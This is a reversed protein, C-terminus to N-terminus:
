NNYDIINIEDYPLNDYIEGLINLLKKDLEYYSGNTYQIKDDFFTVNINKKDTRMRILYNWDGHPRSNADRYNISNLFSVIKNIDDKNNFQKVMSGKDIEIDIIKFDIPNVISKNPKVYAENNLPVKKFSDKIVILLIVIISCFIILLKLYTSKKVKM